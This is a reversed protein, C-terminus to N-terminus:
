AARASRRSARVVEAVELALDEVAQANGIAHDVGGAAVEAARGIALEVEFGPHGAAAVAALVAFDGAGAVAGVVLGAPEVDAVLLLPSFPVCKTWVSLPVATAMLRAIM